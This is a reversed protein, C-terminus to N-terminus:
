KALSWKTKGPAPVGPVKFFSGPYRDDQEQQPLGPLTELKVESKLSQKQRQSNM